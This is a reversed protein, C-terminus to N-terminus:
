GHNEIGKLYKLLLVFISNPVLLFDLTQRFYLCMLSKLVQHFVRFRVKYIEATPPTNEQM